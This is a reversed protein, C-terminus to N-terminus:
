RPRAQRYCWCKWQEWDRFGEFELGTWRHFKVVYPTELRESEKFARADNWLKHTSVPAMFSRGCM